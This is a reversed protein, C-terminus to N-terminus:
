RPPEGGDTVTWCVWSMHLPCMPILTIWLHTEVTDIFQNGNDDCDWKTERKWFVGVWMDQPKFEWRVKQGFLKM